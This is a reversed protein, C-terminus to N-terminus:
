RLLTAALGRLMYLRARAVRGEERLRKGRERYVAAVLSGSGSPSCARAMAADFLSEAQREYGARGSTTAFWTAMRVYAETIASEPVGAASMAARDIAVADEFPDALGRARLRWGTRAALAKLSQDELWQSTKQAPHIRYRVVPRELNALEFHESVRFWLDTDLSRVFQPRYLGAALLAARRATVASHVFPTTWELASRIEADSTPYRHEAFPRGVDDVFIVAGGVLAIEEHEGLYGLQHELRDPLAVDDADLVAVVSARAALIARNLSRASGRNERRFLVIRSDGRAYGDLIRPTADTSGDDVIVLELDTHTQSLISEVAETLFREGNYVGIVVSVAPVSV